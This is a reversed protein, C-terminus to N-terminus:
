GRREMRRIGRLGDGLLNTSLVLLFLAAGPITIAWPAFFIDEKAEALMLGWSPAPPRIGLGLFSLSAELLIANGMEITVIVGLLGAINPLIETLIIRVAGSGLARAAKIYDRQRIQQTATRTVVAARDWLLLSAILIIVQLSAGFTSVAVLAVLIIPMALRSQILFSAALDVRGGWYGATVGIAAGIAGSVLATVFGVLLSVRSGYLLRTWYDRGVKDTGLPHAATASDDGWIWAHWIPPLRRHLLDQRYPDYPTLLPAFVAMAVILAVGTIGVTFGPNRRM